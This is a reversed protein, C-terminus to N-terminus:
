EGSREGVDSEETSAKETGPIVEVSPLEFPNKRSECVLECTAIGVKSVADNVGDLLVWGYSVGGKNDLEVVEKYFWKGLPVNRADDDDIRQVLADVIFWGRRDKRDQASEDLLQWEDLKKDRAPGFGSNATSKAKVKRSGESM